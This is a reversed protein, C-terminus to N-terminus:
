SLRSPQSIGAVWRDKQSSSSVNSESSVYLYLQKLIHCDTPPTAFVLNNENWHCVLSVAVCCNWMFSVANFSKDLVAVRIEAISTESIQKSRQKFRKGHFNASIIFLLSNLFPPAAWLRIRQFSRQLSSPLANTKARTSNELIITPFRSTAEVM